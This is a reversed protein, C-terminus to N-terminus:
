PTHVGGSATRVAEDSERQQEGYARDQQQEDPETRLDSAPDGAAAPAGQPEPLSLARQQARDEALVGREGVRGRQPPRQRGGALEPDHLRQERDEDHRQDGREPSLEIHM